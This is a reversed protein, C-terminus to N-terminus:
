RLTPSTSPHRDQTSIKARSAARTAPSPYTCITPASPGGARRADASIMFAFDLADLIDEGSLKVKPSGGGGAPARLAPGCGLQAALPLADGLFTWRDAPAQAWAGPAILVGLLVLRSIWAQRRKM